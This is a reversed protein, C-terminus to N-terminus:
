TLADFAAGLAGGYALHRGAPLCRPLGGLGVERVAATAEAVPAPEGLFAALSALVAAPDSVAADGSVVLVDDAGLAAAAADLHARLRALRQAAGELDGDACRWGPACGFALWNLFGDRPERRVVIARVRGFAALAHPLARADLAPLWDVLRADAPVNARELPRAYKRAFLRALDADVGGRAEDPTFGDTRPTGGIRDSLLRVGPLLGLLRAVSEVGDGPAGLLLAAPARAGAVPTIQRARAAEDVIAAAIPMPLDPLPGAGAERHGDRWADVAASTEGVADHATGLAMARLRKQAPNLTAPDLAQAQAIAERPAGERLAARALVLRAGPHQPDKGRLIEAEAKADDHRGILELLAALGARAARDEPNRYLVFRWAERAEDALGAEACCTALSHRAELDDPALRVAERWAGIAERLLRLRTLCWALAAVVRPQGARAELSDRYFTTARGLDGRARFVDGMMALAPARQEPVALLVKLHEQAEDFRKGYMLAEALVIRAAHFDPKLRLANGLAQEAFATMGKSLYARGLSAQPAPDAPFLEAARTLYKIAGDTDGRTLLLNGQGVLVDVREGGARGALKFQEDARATDGQMLAIQALAGYAGTLNPDLRLATEFDARAADLMRAHLEIGGLTMYYPARDPALEIARRVLEVAERADGRQRRVMGLLHLTEPDDPNFTLLERYRQEAEELRGQKHLELIEELMAAAARRPDATEFFPGANHWNRSSFAPCRAGFAPDARRRAARQLTPLGGVM